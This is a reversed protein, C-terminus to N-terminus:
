VLARVTDNGDRNLTEMAQAVLADVQKRMEPSALQTQLVQLASETMDRSAHRLTEDDVLTSRLTQRLPEQIGPIGESVGQMAGKAASQGLGQVYAQNVCGSLHLVTLLALAAARMTTAGGTAARSRSLHDAVTTRM